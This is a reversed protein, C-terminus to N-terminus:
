YYWLDIKQKLNAFDEVGFRKITAISNLSEVLQSELDASSEM